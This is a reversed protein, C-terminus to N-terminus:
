AGKKVDSLIQTAASIGSLCAGEMFGQWSYFSDAHEGAFKLKGVPEGELGAVSTFQGPKYCTYSGKQFPESPWHQRVVTGTYSASVGPLAVDLSTLFDSVQTGLPLGGLDRGRDGGAYDTLISYAGAQTPNTEWTSQMNPLDTTVSGNSDHQSLWPKGAFGMMTKANMGYGLEDIARRKDSSLGLSPELEIERLVTFPIALVVFDALAVDGSEFTLVYEGFGNRGLKKLFAGFEIPGPLRSAIGQAIADNGDVLHYREDSFVGFPTFKSRRDAHIFLLFNLSSQEHTELGYEGVYAIDIVERIIPLDDARTELYTRLDIEDLAVDAPTHARFSPAGSLTQLDRQMRKSLVRYEAVVEQESVEGGLVHFVAEGPQKGLDEKKLGFENAYGLMTKHLNDILEGGLEAVQGPFTGRLSYCRGGVRTGAEYLTASYGKARLADACALGALGAGVIAIRPAPQNRAGFLPGAALTAAGAAAGRLLTRRSIAGDNEAQSLVQILRRGQESRLM